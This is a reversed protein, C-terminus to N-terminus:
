FKAQFVYFLLEEGTIVIQDTEKLTLIENFKTAAFGELSINRSIIKIYM